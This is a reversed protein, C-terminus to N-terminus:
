GTVDALGFLGLTIVYAKTVLVYVSQVIDLLLSRVM